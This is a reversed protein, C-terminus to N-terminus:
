FYGAEGFEAAPEKESSTAFDEAVSLTWGIQASAAIRETGVGNGLVCAEIKHPNVALGVAQLANGPDQEVVFRGEPRGGEHRSLNEVTREV